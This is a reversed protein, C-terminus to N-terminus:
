QLIMVIGGNQVFTKLAEIYEKEFGGEPGPPMPMISRAAATEDAAQFRRQFNLNDYL